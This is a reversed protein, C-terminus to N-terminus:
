ILLVCECLWLVSFSLWFHPSVSLFPLDAHFFLPGHCNITRLLHIQPLPPCVSELILVLARVPDISSHFSRYNVKNREKLNLTNNGNMLFSAHRRLLLHQLCLHTSSPIERSHFCWSSMYLCSLGHFLAKDWLSSCFFHLSSSPFIELVGLGGACLCLGTNCHKWLPLSYGSLECLPSLLTEMM